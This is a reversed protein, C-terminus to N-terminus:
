RKRWFSIISGYTKLSNKLKYEFVSWCGFKAKVITEGITKNKKFIKASHKTTNRKDNFLIIDGKKVNKFDIPIYYKIMDYIIKDVEKRYYKNFTYNYCCQWTRGKQIYKFQKSYKTLLDMESIYNDNFLTKLEYIM